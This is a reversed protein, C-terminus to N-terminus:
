NWLKLDFYQQHRNYLEKQNHFHNLHMLPIYIVKRSLNQLKELTEVFGKTETATTWRIDLFQFSAKQLLPKCVEFLDLTINNGTLNLYKLHQFRSAYRSDTLIGVLYRIGEDTLRNARLNIGEIEQGRKLIDQEVVKKITLGTGSPDELAVDPYNVFTCYGKSFSLLLSFALGLKIHRM